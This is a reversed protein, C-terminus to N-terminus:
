TRLYPKEECVCVCVYTSAIANSQNECVCVFVRVCVCVCVFMRVCSCVFVCVCVCVYSWVCVCHTREVFRTNKRGKSGHTRRTRVSM